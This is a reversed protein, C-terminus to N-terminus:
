FYVQFNMRFVVIVNQDLSYLGLINQINKRSAAELKNQFIGTNVKHILLNESYLGDWDNWLSNEVAPVIVKDDLEDVNQFTHFVEALQNKDVYYQVTATVNLTKDKNKLSIQHKSFKVKPRMDIIEVTHTFPNIFHMGEQILVSDLQGEYRVIGVYGFDILRVSLILLTILITFVAVLGGFITYKKSWAFIPKM